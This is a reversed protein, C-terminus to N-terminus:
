PLAGTDINLPDKCANLLVVAYLDENHKIGSAEKETIRSIAKHKRVKYFEMDKVSFTEFPLLRELDSINYVREFDKITEHVGFPATFIFQGGPKLLSTIKDTAQKDANTNPEKNNYVNLGFHEIASINLIIDYKGVFKHTLFDDKIFDFSSHTYGYDRIDIGTVHYGQMALQIPVISEACGIDLVTGPTPKIHKFVYPTEVLRENYLANGYVGSNIMHKANAKNPKSHVVREVFNRINM